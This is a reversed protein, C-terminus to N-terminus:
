ELVQDARLLLSAPLSLGLARAAQRNVVLEFKTPQEIPLHAPSAGKLIRDVFVAARRYLDTFNAAYAMLGGAEAHERIGYMAPIRHKAALEALRTRHIFMMPDAPVLLAGAGSKTVAAFARDFEDPGRATVLHRELGLLRAAVNTEKLMITHPQHAPNYLIAIRTAQPVAEKLLELQKVSLEALSTLGTVNSGPRALSQVLGSGVPDGATVTVIPITSTLQKAAVAAGTVAAVIVDVKLRILDAVLDPFREFNGEAWRYDVIISQGEIYGLERLGKRFGEVMHGPTPSSGSIVGVRPAKGPAQALTSFPALVLFAVLTLVALHREITGGWVARVDARISKSKISRRRSGERLRVSM